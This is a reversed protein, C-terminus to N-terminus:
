GGATSSKRHRADFSRVFQDEFATMLPGWAGPGTLEVVALFAEGPVPQEGSRWARLTQRALTRRGLRLCLERALANNSFGTLRCLQEFATSVPQRYVNSAPAAQQRHAVIGRPIPNSQDSERYRHVFTRRLAVQWTHMSCLRHNFVTVVEAMKPPQEHSDLPPLRCVAGRKRRIGAWIRSGEREVEGVTLHEHRDVM